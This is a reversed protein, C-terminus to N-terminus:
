SEEKQITTYSPNIGRELLQGHLWLVDATTLEFAMETDTYTGLFLFREPEIPGNLKERRVFARAAVTNEPKYAIFCPFGDETTFKFSCSTSRWGGELDAVTLGHRRLNGGSIRSHYWGKSKNPSGTAIAGHGVMRPMIRNSPFLFMSGSKDVVFYSDAYGKANTPWGRDILEQEIDKDLYISTSGAAGVSTMVKM